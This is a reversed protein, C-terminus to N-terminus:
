IIDVQVRQYKTGRSRRYRVTPRGCKKCVCCMIPCFLFCLAGIIIPPLVIELIHVGPYIARHTTPPLTPPALPPQDPTSSVVSSRSLFSIGNSPTTTHADHQKTTSSPCTTSVDMSVPYSSSPIILSPIYGQSLSSHIVISVSPKSTTHTSPSSQKNATGTQSQVSSPLGSYNLGITKNNLSTISSPTVPKIEIPEIQGNMSMESPSGNQLKGPTSYSGSKSTMHSSFHTVHDTVQSASQTHKNAVNQYRKRSLSSIVRITDQVKDGAYARYRDGGAHAQPQPKRQAFDTWSKSSRTESLLTSDISSSELRTMDISQPKRLQVAESSTGYHIDHKSAQNSASM